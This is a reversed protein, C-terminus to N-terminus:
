LASNLALSGVRCTVASAQSSGAETISSHVWNRRVLEMRAQGFPATRIISEIGSVTSVEFLRAMTLDSCPFIIMLVKSREETSVALSAKACVM